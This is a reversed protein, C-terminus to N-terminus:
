LDIRWVKCEPHRSEWEIASAYVRTEIFYAGEYALRLSRELMEPRVDNANYTGITKQLALSLVQVLDHGCCIQWPDINNIKKNQIQQQIDECKISFNQSKDRVTKILAIENINLKKEDIFKKFEIGEFKLNLGDLQSLWRLYGISLSAELLVKRIDRGFAEIKAESGFEALVKELAPSQIILTELDHTDTLIINSSRDIQQKSFRDFDADVIALVGAFCDKELIDIVGIANSKNNAALVQCKKRDTFREYFIRDTSGEVLLFSGVFTSRQMRITNAVRDPTLLDRM